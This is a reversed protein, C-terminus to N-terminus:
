TPPAASNRSRLDYYLLATMLATFSAAFLHAVLGVIFSAATRTDSIVVGVVTSAIGAIVAVLVIFVFIHMYNGRTLERSRRLAPLWGEHEIAATQAVVFWRFLLIVGPVILAIFGLFTGIGAMITAAAVVPLVRLGRRGVSGLEPDKGERADAVAHVHLASVLPGVLIWGVVPVLVQAAVSSDHQSYTGGGTLALVILEYPVIVGAALLFFLAPYRSYLGYAASALAGPDRPRDPVLEAPSGEV